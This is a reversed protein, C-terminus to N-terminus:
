EKETKWQPLTFNFKSGVKEVSEVSVEGGHAEVIEKVISLGLGVGTRESQGPVRYFQEFIHPIHETAIGEGTDEVSFVIFNPKETATLTVAGGPSTFRLANSLLNSFVHYIKDVDSRVAPLSQSVANIMTVGQDKAQIIFADIANQALALPPMPQFSLAAKRSEIHNLDLLNDLVGALRDSDDRAAILLEIQKANLAGIREELLLHISMRISTLPTKLQHSVTAVVSRKLEQQEFVQTADKLILVIGAIEEQNPGALIPMAVPQFFYEHNDVFQQVYGVNRTHKTNFNGEFVKKILPPLWDYPLDRVQVGTKLGFHREATETAVEVRGDIDLIALAEPLAKFVEETAQRTRILNIRDTQRAQRLASTMENFHDSLLGVEDKSRTELVIDLNGRRIENTSDILRNIPHLIWRRALIGFILALVTAIIMATWIRKHAVNALHRATNNAEYMNTQNLTLIEQALSKIELFLPQLTNFYSTRRVELSQSSQKVFLLTTNFEEFIKKIRQANEMEGPLTINGLEVELASRFESAYLDILHNGETANGSLIFLIGSDMRELAEKMNQCAIVSRYNEKLIVDIAKGLVDIQSLTLGGMTMMVVLLSLFGLMLKQRIGIM